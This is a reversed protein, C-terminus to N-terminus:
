AILAETEADFLRAMSIDVPVELWSDVSPRFHADVRAILAAHVTRLNLYTEAGMPEVVEVRARLVPRDPEGPSAKAGLNEPRIGFVVPRAGQRAAIERWAAPAPLRVDGDTFQFGGEAPELRGRFLNMPPTGIFSAVFLNAPQEYLTLPDAVQQIHGDKMVCIRDGMTM